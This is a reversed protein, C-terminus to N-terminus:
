PARQRNAAFILRSPPALLATRPPTWPGAHLSVRVSHLAHSSPPDTDELFIRRALGPLLSGSPRTLAADAVPDPSAPRLQTFSAPAPFSEVAHLDAFAAAHTQPAAPPLPVSGHLPLAAAVALMCLGISRLRAGVGVNMM